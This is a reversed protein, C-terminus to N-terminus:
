PLTPWGILVKVHMCSLTGVREIPTEGGRGTCPKDTERYTRHKDLYARIWPHTGHLVRDMLVGYKAYNTKNCARALVSTYVWSWDLWEVDAIRMNCKDRLAFTCGYFACGIIEWAPLNAKTAQLLDVPFYLYQQPVEIEVLWRSVIRGIIRFFHDRNNFDRANFKVKIDNRYLMMAIPGVVHTWWISICADNSHMQRHLEGGIFMWQKYLAQNTCQLWHSLIWTQFDLHVVKHVGPFMEELVTYADAMDTEKNTHKDTLMPLARTYTRGPQHDMSAPPREMIQAEIGLRVATIHEQWVPLLKAHIDDLSPLSKTMDWSGSCFLSEGMVPPPTSFIHEPVLMEEIVIGHEMHNKVRTGDELRSYSVRSYMDINDLALFVMQVVRNFPVRPVYNVVAHLYRSVSGDALLFGLHQDAKDRGSSTHLYVNDISAAILLLSHARQNREHLIYTIHWHWVLQRRRKWKLYQKTKQQKPQQYRTDTTNWTLQQVLYLLQPTLREYEEYEQQFCGPQLLLHMRQDISRTELRAAMEDIERRVRIPFEAQNMTADSICDVADQRAQEVLFRAKVLHQQLLAERDQSAALEARLQLVESELQLTQPRGPRTTM